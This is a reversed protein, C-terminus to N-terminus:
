LLELRRTRYPFHVRNTGSPVEPEVPEYLAETTPEPTIAGAKRARSHSRNAVASRRLDNPSFSEVGAEEARKNCCLRIATATLRRVEVSGGKRVPCLLPGDQEGRAAMWDELAILAGNQLPVTRGRAEKTGKVHVTVQGRRPDYKMDKIGLAVMENVRLGGQFGLSLTLCDRPGPPREDLNCVSTLARFESLSLIRGRAPRKGEAKPLQIALDREEATLSGLKYCEGLVRRLSNRLKQVHKPAYSPPV